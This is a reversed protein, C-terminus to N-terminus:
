SFTGKAEVIAETMFGKSFLVSQSQLIPKKFNEYFVVDQPFIASFHPNFKLMSNQIGSEKIKKVLEIDGNKILHYLTISAVKHLSINEFNSFNQLVMVLFRGYDTDSLIGKFRM